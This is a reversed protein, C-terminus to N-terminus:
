VAFYLNQNSACGIVDHVLYILLAKGAKKFTYINEIYIYKKANLMIKRKKGCDFCVQVVCKPWLGGTKFQQM